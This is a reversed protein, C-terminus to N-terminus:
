LVVREGARPPWRWPEGQPDRQQSTAVLQTFSNISCYLGLFRELVAAFLYCGSGTFKEEDFHIRVEVGRCFGGAVGGARGVVRRSEVRQIGALMAQTQSSDTVDYLKLIERLAHGGDENEALSLHNLSLHSILRWLDGRKLARRITATPPTLCTIRSIPSQGDVLAMQPRGGGFPLRRPLDRNLCTTEVDITWEAPASPSFALDVLVLDIETGLDRQGLAEQQGGPRRVAHWFTQQRARDSGHKFSYFPQYEVQEGSPSTATVRDISYIELAGPRRADPVVHYATQTQTLAFPDARQAFLNVIPTAGLRFTEAAVGRELDPLTRNLYFYIELMSGFRALKGSLDLDLFLFKEPCAFFETLLRYGPFSRASYPLLAENAAFGVPRLSSKSLLVPASDRPGNVVAIELTHQFLLEYLQFVNQAQVAHLFFRLGPLLLNGFGIDKSYTALELRLVAIAQSSRPTAPASFPRSTLSAARLQCPWLTVDYGTRFRCAEGEVPESDLLTGREIKYGTTLEGQSRDLQFEVIAMSPIPNQFHPYLVGLLADSIEPFDDELKYRTRANLYAFGELLREVHPDQSGEPGLRLRSAIKPHAQAFEAALSRIFSLERNYYPLLEESV